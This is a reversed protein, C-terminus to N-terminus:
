LQYGVAPLFLEPADRGSRFVGFEVRAGEGLPGAELAEGGGEM